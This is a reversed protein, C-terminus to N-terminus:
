VPILKSLDNVKHIINYFEDRSSVKTPDVIEFEIQYSCEEESDMDANDGSSITMDISLNKRVFSYRTKTRKRDMEYEGWTPIERCVSFRMDTPTGSLDEKVVSIKQVMKQEGTDQNSTIRISDKDNYFVDSVFSETKEWKDYKRLGKLVREFTEKGVNTDFFSGNYKGLRLEIEIHEEDKHSDFVPLLKEVISKINHM